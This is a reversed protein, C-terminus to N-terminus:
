PNKLRQTSQADITTLSKMEPRALKGRLGSELPSQQSSAAAQEGPMDPSLPLAQM